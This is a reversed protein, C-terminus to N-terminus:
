EEIFAFKLIKENCTESRCNDWNIYRARCFRLAVDTLIIVQNDPNKKLLDEDEDSFYRWKIDNM